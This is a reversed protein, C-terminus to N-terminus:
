QALRRLSLGLAVIAGGRLILDIGIFLGIAWLGSVPWGALLLAGLALSLAGDAVYLWQGEIHSSLAFGIVVAGTALFYFAIVVTIAEAGIAPRTVLIFGIIALLIAWLVHIFFATWYGTFSFAVTFVGIAGVLLLAGIIAVSVLTATRARWIALIGLVSLAAGLAVLWGWHAGVGSPTQAIFIDFQQQM